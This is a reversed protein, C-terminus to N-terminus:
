GHSISRRIGIRCTARGKSGTHTYPFSSCLLTHLVVTAPLLCSFKMALHLGAIQYSNLRPIETSRKSLPNYSAYM